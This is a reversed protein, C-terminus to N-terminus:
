LYKYRYFALTYGICTPMNFNSIASQMCTKVVDNTSNFANLLFQFNRFELQVTRNNKKILPGIIWVHSNFPIPLLKRVATNWSKCCKDFDYFSCCYSKFLNILVSTQLTGYNAMLKNVYGIFFYKLTVILM